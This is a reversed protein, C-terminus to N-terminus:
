PKGGAERIERRIERRIELSRAHAELGEARALLVAHPALESLASRSAEVITTRRTFTEVSLGSAFRAAGATPLVHNSGAVYDGLATPTYEGVFVCGAGEIKQALERANKAIVQAHEPALRKVLAPADRELDEVLLCLGNKEWSLSAVSNEPLLALQRRVEELTAKITGEDCCLLASFANEDHEAQAILDAAIWAPTASSDALILVESPGALTDIGVRGFLQRKAETVWANGPGVILDVRPISECGLALTAIAQAGGLSYVEDIDLLRLALALLPSFARRPARRPARHPARRPSPTAVVLRRVGALRAPVGTMLLTSPYPHRGGPVYLAVEEIASVRVGLRMGSAEHMDYSLQKQAQVPREHFAQIRAHALRLAREEDPSVRKAAESIEETELRLPDADGLGDWRQAFDRVAKEGEREIRAIVEATQEICAKQESSLAGAGRQRAAIIAELRTSFDADLTSLFEAM